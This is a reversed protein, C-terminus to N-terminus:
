RLRPTRRRPPPSSPPPAPERVSVRLEQPEVLVVGTSVTDSASSLRDSKEARLTTCNSTERSRPVSDGAFRTSCPRRPTPSRSSRGAPALREAARPRQDRREVKRGAVGASPSASAAARLVRRLGCCSTRAAIRVSSGSSRPCGPPGSPAGDAEQEVAAVVARHSKERGRRRGGADIKELLDPLLPRTSVAETPSSGAGVSARSARASAFSRSTESSASAISRSSKWVSESGRARRRPAQLLEELPRARASAQARRINALVHVVVGRLIDVGEVVRDAAALGASASAGARAARRPRPRHAHAVPVHVGLLVPRHAEERHQPRPGACAGTRARISSVPPAGFAEM